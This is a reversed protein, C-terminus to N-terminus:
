RLLNKERLEKHYKIAFRHAESNGLLVAARINKDNVVAEDGLVDRAKHKDDKVVACTQVLISMESLVRDGASKQGEGGDYVVLDPMGWEPHSFRRRLMDRIGQYDDNTGEELKFKKYEDTAKRGDIIVTMVGVRATGSIHAVDYCEVRYGKTKFELIDDNTILAVDNIHDMAWLSNRAKGALEFKEEKAYKKMEAELSKKAENRKGEFIRKINKINNKYDTASIAGVCTGPCLGLQANFCPKKTDDKEGIECRDRFPFMKRIIKLIIRAQSADIFPGYVTDVDSKLFKKEYDRIRMSLVRPFTEKTIVICTYTKNDKEKSNFVPQIEKILKNELLLAELVSPTETYTLNQAALLMNVLKLGRTNILDPNFYSKVRSKLSTAKGVYIINGLPDRSIDSDRFFYVGPADPLSLNEVYILLPQNKM